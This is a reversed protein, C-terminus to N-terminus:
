HPWRYRVFAFSYISERGAEMEFFQTEDLLRFGHLDMWDLFGEETWYYLHEGPRYHKSARISGLGYFLPLSTFLCAHLKVHRFYDEPEPVHEIVDWFTYGAFDGLNKALLGNTKLWDLAVANVDIGFTNPRNKIFEGSGIGVDLVRNAGIHRNVLAVRGANIKQAIEEGEYAACKNWYQVAYEVRQNRDVQYAVGNHRCLMLDADREAPMFAIFRDM